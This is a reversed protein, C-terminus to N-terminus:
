LLILSSTNWARILKDSYSLSENGKTTFKKYLSKVKLTRLQLSIPGLVKIHGIRIRMEYGNWCVFM